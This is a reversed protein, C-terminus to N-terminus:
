LHHCVLWKSVCLIPLNEACTGSITKTTYRRTAFTSPYSSGCQLPASLVLVTLSQSSLQAATFVNRVLLRYRNESSPLDMRFESRKSLPHPCSLDRLLSPFPQCRCAPSGAIEDTTLPLASCWLQISPHNIEVLRSPPALSAIEEGVTTLTRLTM